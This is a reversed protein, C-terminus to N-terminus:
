TTREQRGFTIADDLFKKEGTLKYLSAAALQMDDVWNEEEYFYPSICPATQCVGPNRKGYDYAEIAKQKLKEAYETFYKKFVESGLAFASAFKGATSAIGDSRNKYRFMGQPKGTCYYVPRELGKGYSITDENPLRFGRHDRDDAIQNYMEDAKPNMKLLWDIGWKAEDLIDPIGNAKKIGNNEYEDSFCNQNQEYAFLMLYVANASTTVYQLYDSADHWGGTADIHTSDLAPHYIIFGDSTHCSDNLIPNYGCRQQRMYNLLFDASGDYANKFIRIVPSEISDIKIKYSGEERLNSFNLRFTSKFNGFNGYPIIEDSKYELEDTLANYISFSKITINEESLLIAAKKDNPLYGLQNVRIWARVQSNVNTNLAFILSTILFYNKM